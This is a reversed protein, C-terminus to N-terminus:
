TQPIQRVREGKATCTKQNYNTSCQFRCSLNFTSHNFTIVLSKNLLLNTPPFTIEEDCIRVDKPPLLIIFRIIIPRGPAPFPVCASFIMAFYLIGCIEVPSMNRAAMFFSVANPRSAFDYISLPSSTGSSTVFPITLSLNASDSVSFPKKNSPKGLVRTCAFASSAIMFSSSLFISATILMSTFGSTKICRRVPLIM